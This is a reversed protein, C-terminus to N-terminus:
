DSDFWSRQFYRNERLLHTSILHDVFETIRHWNFGFQTVTHKDIDPVTTCEGVIHKSDYEILVTDDPMHSGLLKFKDAVVCEINTCVIVSM